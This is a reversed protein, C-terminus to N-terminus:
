VKRNPDCRSVNISTTKNSIMESIVKGTAPGLSWGVMAHGTAVILNSCGDIRGVYPMGDPTLPRFGVQINECKQERFNISPYYSQAAKQIAEVRNKKLKMDFGSIEMTGGIRTKGLMPTIAVKSETLIAPMKIDTNDIQFSYGKGPQLPLDRGITKLLKGCWSGNALIIQDAQHIQNESQLSVANFPSKKLKLIETGFEFQVGKKILYQYMHNMFVDPTCHADDKYWYAGQINMPANQMQDVERKTLHIVNLGLQRARKALQKESQEVKSTRYTQLLGSETFGFDFNLTKNLESYLEKSLFSMDLLTSESNKVNKKNANLIFRIGWKLFHYNLKPKIFLPGSPDLLYKVASKLVEPNVLTTFHSPTVYGSNVYSTGRGIRSQDYVVIQHGEELLYYACSLGMIGAGVIAVKQKM